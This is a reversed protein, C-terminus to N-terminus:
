LFGPLYPLYRPTIMSASLAVDRLSSSTCFPYALGAYFLDEVDCRVMFFLPLLLYFFMALEHNSIYLSVLPSYLNLSFAGFPSIIAALSPYLLLDPHRLPIPDTFSFAGFASILSRVHIFGWGIQEPVLFM